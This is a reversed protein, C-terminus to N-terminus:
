KGVLLFEQGCLHLPKLLLRPAAAPVLEDEGVLSLEPHRVEDPLIHFLLEGLHGDPSQEPLLVATIRGTSVGAQELHIINQTHIM